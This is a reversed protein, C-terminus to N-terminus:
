CRRKGGPCTCVGGCVRKSGEIERALAALTPANPCYDQWRPDDPEEDLDQVCVGRDACFACIRELDHRVSAALRALAESEVGLAKLRRHLLRAVAPEGRVIRERSIRSLRLQDGAHAVERAPGASLGAAPAGDRCWGAFWAAFRALRETDVPVPDAIPPM